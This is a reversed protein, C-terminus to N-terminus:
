KLSTFPQKYYLDIQDGNIDTYVGKAIIYEIDVSKSIYTSHSYSKTPCSIGYYGVLDYMNGETDVAYLQQDLHFKEVASSTLTFQLKIVYLSSDSTSTTVTVAYSTFLSSYDVFTNANDKQLDKKSLSIFDEGVELIQNPTRVVSAGQYDCLTYQIKCFLKEFGADGVDTASSKITKSTSTIEGSTETSPSYYVLGNDKTLGVFQTKQIQIKYISSNTSTYFTVVNYKKTLVDNSYTYTTYVKIASNLEDSYVVEDYDPVYNYERQPLCFAAVVFAIGVALLLMFFIAVNNVKEPFLFIKKKMTEKFDM